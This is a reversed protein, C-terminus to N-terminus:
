HQILIVLCTCPAPLFIYAHVVCVRGGGMYIGGEAGKLCGGGWMFTHVCM